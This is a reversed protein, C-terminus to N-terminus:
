WKCLPLNRRAGECDFSGFRSASNTQTTTTTSPTKLWNLFRDVAEMLKENAEPTRDITEPRAVAAEAAIKAANAGLTVASM